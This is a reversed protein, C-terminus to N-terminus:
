KVYEVRNHMEELTYVEYVLELFKVWTSVGHKHQQGFIIGAHEFGSTAFRVFDADHTCVVYGMAAARQLHNRDSDGRLRLDRVTLAEIGLRVLQPAVAVPMNEDLYFRIRVM